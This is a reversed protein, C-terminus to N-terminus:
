GILCPKRAALTEDLRRLKTRTPAQRLKEGDQEAEAVVSRLVAIFRDLDDKNETETPEIM